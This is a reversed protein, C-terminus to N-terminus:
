IQDFQDLKLRKILKILKSAYQKDTAYGAAQLGKAWGQYDTPKLQYLKKYRQKQLLISHARYSEWASPFSRFFDKHHDDNFNSCHGKKCKKSFCKIGFHNKNQNALKSTGINSELLGQALTISAPIGYKKMEAQAVKYFRNIYQNCDKAKTPEDAQAIPNFYTHPDLFLNHQAKAVSSVTVANNIQNTQTNSHYFLACYAFAVLVFLKLITIKTKESSNRFVDLIIILIAIGKDLLSISITKAFETM